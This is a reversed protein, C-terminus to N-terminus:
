LELQGKRCKRRPNRRRLLLVPLRASALEPGILSPLTVRWHTMLQNLVGPRPWIQIQIPKSAPSPLFSAIWYRFNSMFCTLLCFHFKRIYPLISKRPRSRSWHPILGAVPTKSSRKYFNWYKSPGPLSSHKEPQIM